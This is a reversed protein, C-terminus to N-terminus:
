GAEVLASRDVKGRDGRPLGDLHVLRRPTMYPPLHRALEAQIADAGGEGEYFGVLERLGAQGDERLIVAADRVGEVAKLAHEIEGLEIRYGMYKVQGDRRGVFVYDGRDNRQVIDGTRYLRRPPTVEDSVEDPVGDSWNEVFARETAGQDGLYGRSLGPGSLCLEGPDGPEAVAGDDTLLVAGVGACPRGIPIREDARTPPQTVEHFLSIGTAETPGYANGFRKDPYTEMWRMLTRTPLTEGGFLVWRLTSMRGPALVRAREMYMLLSSVGKWLTVGQDEIFDVLRGPFLTHGTGAVVLRAGAALPVYVDFVSMDFHFPATSLVTDDGTVQFTEVAWDIYARINRHSIMVGKPTGTSGSTYLVYAVDEDTARTEPATDALSDLDALTGARGAVEPPLEEPPVLALVPPPGAERDLIGLLRPASRADCIAADPRCDAIMAAWRDAPAGPDLPVYAADARLVGLMAVVPDITRELCIM